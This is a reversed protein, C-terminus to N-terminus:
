CANAEGLHMLYSLTYSRRSYYNINVFHIFQPIEVTLYIISAPFSPNKYRTLALSSYSTQLLSIEQEEIRQGL